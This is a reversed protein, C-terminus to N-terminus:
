IKKTKNEWQVNRAKNRSNMQIPRTNIPPLIIKSSQIVKESNTTTPFRSIRTFLEQYYKWEKELQKTSYSSKQNILRRYIASNEEVIKELEQKRKTANLSKVTYNPRDAKNYITFIRNIKTIVDEIM